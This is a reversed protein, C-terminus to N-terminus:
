EFCWVLAPRNDTADRFLLGFLQSNLEGARVRVGTAATHVSSLDLWLLLAPVPSAANTYVSSDVLKLPKFCGSTLLSVTAPGKHLSDQM